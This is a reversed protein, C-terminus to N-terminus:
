RKRVIIKPVNKALNKITNRLQCGKLERIKWTYPKKTNTLLLSSIRSPRRWNVHKFGRGKLAKKSMHCYSIWSGLTM